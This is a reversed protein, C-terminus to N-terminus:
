HDKNLLSKITIYIDEAHNFAYPNISYKNKIVLGPILKIKNKLALEDNLSLINKIRESNFSNWFVKPNISHKYLILNIDNKTPKSNNGFLDYFSNIHDNNLKTLESFALHFKASMIWTDNLGIPIMNINLSSDEEKIKSIAEHVMKSQGSGYWFFVSIDSLEVQSAQDTNSYHHNVLIDKENIGINAMWDIDKSLQNNCGTMLLLSLVSISTLLTKSKKM